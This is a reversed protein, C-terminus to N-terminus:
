AALKYGARWYRYNSAAVCGAVIAALALFSGLALTSIGTLSQGITCGPATVGGFGM